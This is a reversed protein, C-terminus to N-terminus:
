SVGGKAAAEGAVWGTSFAAQLNYGGTDADIDILEGAIHLGRCLRSAMTRPDIESRVVGGATMIGEALPRTREIDFRFSKLWLRLRRRGAASVQHAPLEGPLECQECCVSILQKPLLGKLLVRVPQKGKADLDRLLRRDLKGDDLAPKLDIRVQVANGADLLEGVLKSLSLIIPGGLGDRHFVMEGFQEARKKDGAWVQATVLRLTLGELRGAVDGRTVLPVLAPHAAVIRHGADQALRYGDGTSGTAPYSAGGTALIVAEAPVWREGRADTEARGSPGDQGGPEGRVAEPDGGRVWVGRVRGDRLALRSVPAAPELAVGRSRVWGALADVVQRADQSQPFVRGGRETVTAVGLGELLDILDTPSFRSLAHRIFRRGEGFHRVFAGLPAANTLNCRGQGTIRLKRAPRPMKELLRVRAGLEAARGAALLGAAGAGVVVISHETPPMTCTPGETPPLDLFGRLNRYKSPM